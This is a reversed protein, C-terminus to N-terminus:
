TQQGNAAAGIELLLSWAIISYGLLDHASDSRSEYNIIPTSKLQMYRAMKDWIRPLLGPLGHRRYSQGYDSGKRCLTSIVSQLCERIEPELRRWDTDSNGNIKGSDVLYLLASMYVFFQFIENLLFLFSPPWEGLPKDSFTSCVGEAICFQYFIQFWINEPNPGPLLYTQMLCKDPQKIILKGNVYGYGDTCADALQGISQRLKLVADMNIKDPITSIVAQWNTNRPLWAASIEQWFPTNDGM